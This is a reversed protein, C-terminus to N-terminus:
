KGLAIDGLSHDGHDPKGGGAEVSEDFRLLKPPTVGFEEAKSGSMGLNYSKGNSSIRKNGKRQTSSM